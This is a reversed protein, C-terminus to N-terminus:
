DKEVQLRIFEAAELMDTSNTVSQFEGDDLGREEAELGASGWGGPITLNGNLDVIFTLSPDDTRENYVHYFFGGAESTQPSVTAADDVLPDGGLAYEMLNNLGDGLGGNEADDELGDNVGATLGNDEAWLSYGELPLDGTRLLEVNDIFFDPGYRHYFVIAVDQDAQVNLDSLVLTETVTNTYTKSGLLTVKANGNTKLYEGTGPAHDWKVYNNTGSTDQDLAWFEVRAISDNSPFTGDVQVDLSLEYTGETLAITDQLGVDDYGATNRHIITGTARVATDAANSKLKRDVHSLGTGRWTNNVGNTNTETAGVVVISNTVASDEFQAALVANTSNVPLEYDGVRTLVLDYLRVDCKGSRHMVFLADQNDKVNLYVYGTTRAVDGTGALIGDGHESYYGNGDNQIDVDVGGSAGTAIDLVVKDPNSSTSFLQQDILGYANFSWIVNAGDTNLVEYDFEYRYLGNTLIHTDQAGFNDSGATNAEVLNYASRTNGSSSLTISGASTEQTFNGNHNWNNTFAEFNNMPLTGGGLPGNLNVANGFVQQIVSGTSLDYNFAAVSVTNTYDISSGAEGYVVEVTCTSSQKNGLGVFSDDFTVTIVDTTQIAGPNNASFAGPHQEDLINVESIVVNTYGPRGEVYSVAIDNSVLTAPAVLTLGLSSDSSFQFPPNSFTGKLAVTNTQLVNDDLNKYVIDVTGTTTFAETASTIAKIASADFAFDLATIAPSPTSLTFPTATIATIANSVSMVNLATIEVGSSSNAYETLISNSVVVAPYDALLDQTDDPTLNFTFAASAPVVDNYTAGVRIEDIGPGRNSSITLTNLSGAATPQSVTSLPAGPLVLTADVEYLDVTDNGGVNRKVHGVLLLVNNDSKAVTGGVSVSVASGAPWVAAGLNGGKHTFGFGPGTAMNGNGSSGDGFAGGGIGFQTTASTEHLVSFWFESPLSASITREIAEVGGTNTRKLKNSSVTLSGLSFSGSTVNFFSGAADSSGWAGSLGVGGGLSASEIGGTTTDYEFGEYVLPDAAQVTGAVAMVAVLSIWRKIDM